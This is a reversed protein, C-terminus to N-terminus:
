KDLDQTLYDANETIKVVKNLTDKCGINEAAILAQLLRNEREDETADKDLIGARVNIYLEAINM